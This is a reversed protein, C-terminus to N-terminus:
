SIRGGPACSALKFNVLRATDLVAILRGRMDIIGESCLQRLTRSLHEQSLGLKSAIDRKTTPLVFEYHATIDDPRYQLLYCTVREISSKPACSELDRILDVVRRSVADLLRLSLMCDHRAQQTLIRRDISLIHSDVKTIANAVHAEGLWLSAVGFSEGREVMAVVKENENAMPLSVKVQGSVVIHLTDAVEGKRFVYEGRLLKIQKSGLALQQLTDPRLDRFYDLRGIIETIRSQSLAIANM